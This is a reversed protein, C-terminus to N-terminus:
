MANFTEAVEISGGVAPRPLRSGAERRRRPERLEGVTELLPGLGPTLAPHPGRDPGAAVGPRSLGAKIIPYGWDDLSILEPLLEGCLGHGDCRIRDIQLADSM